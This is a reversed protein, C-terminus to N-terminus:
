NFINKLENTLNLLYRKDLVVINRKEENLADEYEFITVKRVTKLTETEEEYQGLYEYYTNEDIIYVKQSLTDTYEYHHVTQNPTQISGYKAKIFEIFQNHPKYTDIEPDIINNAYFIAWVYKSDGYYKNSIVDFREGDELTYKYYLATKELIADRIKGRVMINVALNNSYEVKPYYAFHKM